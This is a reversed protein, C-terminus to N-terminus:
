YPAVQLLLTLTVTRLTIAPGFLGGAEDQVFHIELWHSAICLLFYGTKRSEM